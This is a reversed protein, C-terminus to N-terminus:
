NFKIYKLNGDKIKEPIYNLDLELFKYLSEFYVEKLFLM